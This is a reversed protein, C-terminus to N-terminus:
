DLSELGKIIDDLSEFPLCDIGTNRCLSLMPETAFAYHALRAAPIDSAGNGISVVRYGKKLFYRIYAEKFGDQIEAGDPGAYSAEIGDDRFEAQAAYIEVDDVGTNELLTRIYFTMGNSVIVFRFGKNLCYNLLKPFGPRIRTKEKVFGTTENQILLM